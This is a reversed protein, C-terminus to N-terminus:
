FIMPPFQPLIIQTSKISNDQLNQLVIEKAKGSLTLIFIANSKNIIESFYYVPCKMFYDNKAQGDSVVYAIPYINIEKMVEAFYQAIVGIGYIYVSQNNNYLDKLSKKLNFFIYDYYKICHEYDLSVMNFDENPMVNQTTEAQKLTDKLEQIYLKIESKYKKYDVFYMELTHRLFVQVYFNTMEEKVCNVAPKDLLIRKFVRWSAINLDCRKQTMGNLNMFYHYAYKNNFIIKNTRKLIPWIRDLDEFVTVNDDVTLGDFLKRKYVKGWLYWHLGKKNLMAKLFQKRSMICSNQTIYSINSHKDKSQTINGMAIDVSNNKQLEDILCPLLESDVWDDSDVFSIYKGTAIKLATNRAAVLGKNKQHIVKIQSYQQSYKDCIKGSNDTSGDDVLIVEYDTIPMSILANLCRILYSEVNYVPVLVSLLM